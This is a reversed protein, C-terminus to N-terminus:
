WYGFVVLLLPLAIFERLFDIERIPADEPTDWFVTQMIATLITGTFEEAIKGARCTAKGM